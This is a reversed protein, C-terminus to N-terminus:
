NSPASPTSPAAEFRPDVGATAASTKLTQATSAQGQISIVQLALTNSAALRTQNTAALEKASVYASRALQAVAFWTPANTRVADAAVTFRELHATRLQARNQWEFMVFNDLNSRANVLAQDSSALFADGQYVGAPDQSATSVCGSLLWMALFISSCLSAIIALERALVFGGQPGAGAGTQPPVVPAPPSDKHTFHSLVFGIVTMVLGFSDEANFFAGVKTAGHAVLAGGVTKLLSRVISAVQDQNV